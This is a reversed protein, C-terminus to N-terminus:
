WKLTVEFNFEGGVTAVMVSGQTNFKLGFKMEKEKTPLDQLQNVIVFALPKIDNLAETISKREKEGVGAAPRIGRSEPEEVEILITKEEEESLPLSVIRKAM